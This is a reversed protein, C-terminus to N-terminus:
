AKLQDQGQIIFETLTGRVQLIKINYQLNM